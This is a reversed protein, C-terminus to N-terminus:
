EIYSNLFFLSLVPQFGSRHKGTIHWHFTVLNKQVQNGEETFFLTVFGIACATSVESPQWIFPSSAILAQSLSLSQILCCENKRNKAKQGEFYMSPKSHSSLMHEKRFEVEGMGFHNKLEFLLLPEQTWPWSNHYDLSRKGGFTFNAAAKSHRLTKKLLLHPSLFQTFCQKREGWSISNLWFLVWGELQSSGRSFSMAGWELIRTQFIGHVSSDPPSYDM